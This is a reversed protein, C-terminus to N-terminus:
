VLLGFCSWFAGKLTELQQETPHHEQKSSMIDKLQAEVSRCHNISEESQQRTSYLKKKVLRPVLSEGEEAVETLKWEYLERNRLHIIMTTSLIGDSSRGCGWEKADLAMTKTINDELERYNPVAQVLYDSHFEQVHGAVPPLIIPSDDNEYDELDEIKVDLVGEDNSYVSYLPSSPPDINSGRKIGNRSILDVTREIAHDQTYDKTMSFSGDDSLHPHDVLDEDFISSGPSGALDSTGSSFLSGTSTFSRYINDISPLRSRSYSRALSRSLLHSPSASPKVMYPIAQASSFETQCSNSGVEWGNSELSNVKNPSILSEASFSGVTSSSDGSVTMARSDYRYFDPSNDESFVGQQVLKALSADHILSSLIFILKRGYIRNNAVLVSRVPPSKGIHFRGTLLGKNLNVFCAILSALFSVGAEFDDFRQMAWKLERYLESWRDQGCVVRPIRLGKYVRYRFKETSRILSVDSILSFRRALGKRSIPAASEKAQNISCLFEVIRKSVTAQLELLAHVVDEWHNVLADPNDRPPSFYICLGCRIEKYSAKADEKQPFYIGDPNWALSDYEPSIESFESRVLSSPGGPFRIESNERRLHTFVTPPQDTPVKVKFLLSILFTKKGSKNDPLLHLKTISKKIVLPTYGFVVQKLLPLSLPEPLDKYHTQYASVASVPTANPFNRPSQQQSNLGNFSQRQGLPSPTKSASDSSSTLSLSSFSRTLGGSLRELYPVTDPSPHSLLPTEQYSASDFVVAECQPHDVILAVRMDKNPDLKTEAVPSIPLRYILTRTESEELYSTPIAPNQDEGEVPPATAGRAFLRGLM